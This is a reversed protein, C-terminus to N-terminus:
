VIPDCNVALYQSSTATNCDLEYRVPLVSRRWLTFSDGYCDKSAYLTTPYYHHAWMTYVIPEYIATLNDEKRVLRATNGLFM